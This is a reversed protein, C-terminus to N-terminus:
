EEEENYEKKLRDIIKQAKEAERCLMKYKRMQTKTLDGRDAGSRLICIYHSLQDFYELKGFKRYDPIEGWTAACESLYELLKNGANIFTDYYLDHVKGSSM